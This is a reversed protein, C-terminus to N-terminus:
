QTDKNIAKEIYLARQLEAYTMVKIRVLLLHRATKRYSNMNKRICYRGETTLVIKQLLWKVGRHEFAISCCEIKLLVLKDKGTFGVLVERIAKSM